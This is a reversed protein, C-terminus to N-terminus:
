MNDLIVYFFTVFKKYALLLYVNLAKFRAEEVPKTRHNRPRLKVDTTYKHIM